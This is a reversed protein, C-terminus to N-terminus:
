EEVKSLTKWGKRRTDKNRVKFLSRLEVTQPLVPPFLENKDPVEKRWSLNEEEEKKKIQIVFLGLFSPSLPLPFSDLRTGLPKHICEFKAGQRCLIVWFSGRARRSRPLWDFTIYRSDSSDIVRNERKRSQRAARGCFPFDRSQSM